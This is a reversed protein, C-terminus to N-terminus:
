LQYIVVETAESFDVLHLEVKRPDRSVGRIEQLAATGRGKDRCVIHVVAGKEALLRATVLGIGTSGGIIVCIEDTMDAREAKQEKSRFGM